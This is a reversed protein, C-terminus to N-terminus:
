VKQNVPQFFQIQFHVWQDFHSLPPCLLPLIHSPGHQNSPPLLPTIYQLNSWAWGRGGLDLTTRINGVNSVNVVRVNRPMLGQVLFAGRAKGMWEWGKGKCKGPPVNRNLGLILDNPGNWRLKIVLVYCGKAWGRLIPWNVIVCGDGLCLFFLLSALELILDKLVKQGLFSSEKESAKRILRGTSQRIFPPSITQM